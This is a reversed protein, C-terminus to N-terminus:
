GFFNARRGERLATSATRLAEKRSAAAGVCSGTSEGHLLTARRDCSFPLFCQQFKCADCFGGVFYLAPIQVIENTVNWDAYQCLASPKEVDTGTVIPNFPLQHTPV